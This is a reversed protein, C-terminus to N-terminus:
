RRRAIRLAETETAYKTKLAALAGQRSLSLTRTPDNSPSEWYKFM